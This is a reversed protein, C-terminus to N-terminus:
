EGAGFAAPRIAVYGPREILFGYFGAAPKDAKDLTLECSQDGITAKIRAGDVRIAVDVTSRSTARAVNCAGLSKSAVKVQYRKRDPYSPRTVDVLEARDTDIRLGLARMPAITRDNQEKDRPAERYIDRVGFVFTVVPRSIKGQATPRRTSRSDREPRFDAPPDDFALRFRAQVDRRPVGDVILLTFREGAYTSPDSEFYRIEDARRPDSRPGTWPQGEVNWVVHGGVRVDGFVNNRGQFRRLDTLDRAGSETLNGDPGFGTRLDRDLNGLMGQSTRGQRALWLSTMERVLKGRGDVLGKIRANVEAEDALKRLWNPDSKNTRLGVILKTAADLDL